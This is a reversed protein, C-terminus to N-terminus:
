PLVRLRLTSSRSNEIIAKDRQAPEPVASDSASANQRDVYAKLAFNWSKSVDLGNIQFQQTTGVSAPPPADTVSSAAFWPVNANPDVGFTNNVANFDLWDVIHKDSYKIRYKSAGAPVKWSLVYGGSPSRTIELPVSVLEMVQPHLAEYILASSFMTGYEQYFAGHLNLHRLYQNFQQRWAAENGTYKAVVFLNFWCTQSCSPYLPDNPQDIFVEYAFGANLRCGIGTQDGNRRWGETLAWNGIGYALDFTDWYHPWAPGKEQLFEWLGEALIGQQFPKAFRAEHSNGIALELGRTRSVGQEATGFGSLQLEPWVQNALVEEGALEASDAASQDGITRYFVALRADSMLAEGVDRAAYYHGTQALRVHPNGYTDSAGDEIADRITEDGSIFYYDMMGYWHAHQTDIWNRGCHKYGPDCGMGDNLSSIEEPFGQPDLEAQPRDRWHFRGNGMFDSRPFVQESQFIYFHESNVYRAAYGRQLWLMLDAWRMEAQNGGGGTGWVYTRYVHPSPLDRICCVLGLSAYYKDEVKPDVLSYMLAHTEDYYEPPARAILPYQFTDFEREADKLAESHFDLFLEHISYQPWSQFYSQGGAGGLSQDPWIGIRIESGGNVFQLSKPWYAALQYVGVEIGAGSPDRLDAWGEPYSSRNGRFIVKSGQVVEYGEQAYQWVSKCSDSQLLKRSIYSRATSGSFPVAWDCDEMKSSYAQYLYADQTETLTGKASTGVTGITFSRQAGLDPTLRVEFAGFEKYASAFSQSPGYDANQLIVVTKTCTKGKYFTLRVTFRMYAHGASDKLQGTAKVVTRAPGNEEIVATSLEDNTSTYLTSCPCRTSGPAPGLIALGTSAGERLLAHNSVIAEDILDFQRKRIAFKASGTNVIIASGQDAALDAGGFSGTGRSLVISNNRGESPVDAQTDVLVWKVNGDPWRGLVRFQGVTAGTLTLQSSEKIEASDPLPIGVTVPAHQYTTRHVGDYTIPQITLPVQLPATNERRGSSLRAVLLRGERNTGPVSGPRSAIGKTTSSGDPHASDSRPSPLALTWISVPKGNESPLFLVFRDSAEDYAGQNQKWPEALQPGGSINLDNWDGGDFAWTHAGGREAGILVVRQLRPIYDFVPFKQEPPHSTTKLKKWRFTGPNYLWTDGNLYGARGTGGFLVVRDLLPDYVLGEGNLPPPGCPQRPQGCIHTWANDSPSYQWTDDTPSGHHLGGYVLISDNQPDYVFAAEQLPGPPCPRVGNGCVETWTATTPDFEYLDSVGCDGCEGRVGGHSASGFGKWLVHRKSDWAIAHYPHTDAPADTADAPGKGPDTTMHSWLLKWSKDEVRYLFVANSFTGACCNPNALYDLLGGHISDYVPKTWGRWFPTANAPKTATEALVAHQPWSDAQTWSQALALESSSIAFYLLVAAQAFRVNPM